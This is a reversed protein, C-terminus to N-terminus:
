FLQSLNDLAHELDVRGVSGIGTLKEVADSGFSLFHTNVNFQLSGFLILKQFSDSSMFIKVINGITKGLGIVLIPM